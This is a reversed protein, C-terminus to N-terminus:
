RRADNLRDARLQVEPQQEWSHVRAESLGIFVGEGRVEVAPLWPYPKLSMAAVKMAGTEDASPPPNVRTFGKLARLERLRVVRVINSVHPNLLAPVPERYVEFDRNPATGGIDSFVIQQWEEGRLNSIDIGDRK